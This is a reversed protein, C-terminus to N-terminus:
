QIRPGGMQDLVLSLSSLCLFGSLCLHSRSVCLSYPPPHNLGLSSFGSVWPSVSLVPLCLVSALTLSPSLPSFPLPPLFWLARAPLPSLSSPLSVLVQQAKQQSGRRDKGGGLGGPEVVPYHQLPLPELLIKPRQPLNRGM